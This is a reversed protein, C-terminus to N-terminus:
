KLNQQQEPIQKVVHSKGSMSLKLYFCDYNSRSIYIKEKKHHLIESELCIVDEENVFECIYFYFLIMEICQM